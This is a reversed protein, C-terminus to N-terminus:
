RVPGQVATARLPQPTTAVDSGREPAREPALDSPWHRPHIQVPFGEVRADLQGLVACGLWAVTVVVAIALGPLSTYTALVYVLMVSGVIQLGLVIIGAIRIQRHDLM